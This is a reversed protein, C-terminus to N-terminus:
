HSRADFTIPNVSSEKFVSHDDDPQYMSMVEERNKQSIHNFALKFTKNRQTDLHANLFRLKLAAKDKSTSCDSELNKKETEIESQLKM